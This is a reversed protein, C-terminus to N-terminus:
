LLARILPVHTLILRQYTHRQLTFWHCNTMPLEAVGTSYNEEIIELDVLRLQGHEQRVLDYLHTRIMVSQSLSQYSPFRTSRFLNQFPEKM